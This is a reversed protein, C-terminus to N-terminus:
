DTITWDCVNWFIGVGHHGLIKETDVGHLRAGAVYNADIYCIFAYAPDSALETQFRDYYEKRVAPDSSEATVGPESPPAIGPSDM